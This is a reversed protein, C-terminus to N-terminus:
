AQPPLSCAQIGLLQSQVHCKTPVYYIRIILSHIFSHILLHIFLRGLHVKVLLFDELLQGKPMSPQDPTSEKWVVKGNHLHYLRSLKQFWTEFHRQNRLFDLNLLLLSSLESDDEFYFITLTLNKHTKYMICRGHKFIPM